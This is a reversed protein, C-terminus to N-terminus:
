QLIMMEHDITSRVDNNEYKTVEGIQNIHSQPRNCQIFLTKTRHVYRNITFIKSLNRPHIFIVQQIVTNYCSTMRFFLLYIFLIYCYLRKYILRLLM